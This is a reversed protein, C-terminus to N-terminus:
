RSQVTRANQINFTSQLPLQRSSGGAYVRYEGPLVEWADKKVDFIAMMRPPLTITISRTEGSQLQVKRWGVLRKPPEGAAKPLGLYVQAVESGACDGINKVHFTVSIQKGSAVHLQSYSYTTYSLGFGFPFLPQKNEADYWKYGVKLGEIYYM